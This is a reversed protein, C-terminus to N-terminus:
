QLESIIFNVREEVPLFPIKVVSFGYDQYAQILFNEILMAEEPSEFRVEDTKYIEKWFPTIFVKKNYPALKIERDLYEPVVNNGAMLYGASDPLGRDFFCLGKSSAQQLNLKMQGVVLETFAYVDSLPHIESNLQQQQEIVSRAAEGFCNYGRSKLENIISTKGSGPGGSIIYLQDNM